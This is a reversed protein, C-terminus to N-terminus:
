RDPERADTQPRPGHRCEPAAVPDAPAGTAATDRLQMPAAPIWIFHFRKPMLDYWSPQDEYRAQEGFTTMIRDLDHANEAQVHEEVLQIRGDLKDPVVM